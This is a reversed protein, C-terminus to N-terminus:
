HNRFLQKFINSVEGHMEKSKTGQCAKVTHWTNSEHNSTSNGRWAHMWFVVRRGDHDRPRLEGSAKSAQPAQHKFALLHSGSAM